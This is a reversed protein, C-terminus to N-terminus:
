QRAKREDSWGVPDSRWGHLMARDSESLQGVSKAGEILDDLDIIAHLPISERRFAEVAMPFGYTFIAVVATVDMGAERAALAASLSSGGTSILDEVVVVRSGEVKFGEIKNQKGHQKAKSRVYGLPLGLREAVVTAHPIAGTAVGIIAEPAFGEKDILSEFSSGIRARIDPHALTARNDCYM